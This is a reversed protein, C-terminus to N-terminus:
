QPIDKMVFREAFAELKCNFKEQTAINSYEVWLEGDLVTIDAVSFERNDPSIWIKQKYLMTNMLMSM